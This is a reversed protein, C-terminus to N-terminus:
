WNALHQLPTMEMAYTDSSTASVHMTEVVTFYHARETTSGKIFFTLLPSWGKCNKNSNCCNKTQKNKKKQKARDFQSCPPFAQIEGHQNYVWKLMREFRTLISVYAWSGKIYDYGSAILM